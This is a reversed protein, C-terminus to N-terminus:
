ALRGEDVRRDVRGGAALAATDAIEVRLAHQAFFIFSLPSAIAVRLVAFALVLTLALLAALDFAAEFFATFSFDLFGAALFAAVVGGVYEIDRGRCGCNAGCNGM